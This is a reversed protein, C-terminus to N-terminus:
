SPRVYGANKLFNCVVIAGFFFRISCALVTSKGEVAEREM